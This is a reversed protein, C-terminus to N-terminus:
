ALAARYIKELLEKRPLVREDGPLAAQLFAQFAWFAQGPQLFEKYRTFFQVSFLGHCAV